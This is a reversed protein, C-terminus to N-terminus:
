VLIAITIFQQFNIEEYLILTAPILFSSLKILITQFNQIKLPIDLHYYTFILDLQM